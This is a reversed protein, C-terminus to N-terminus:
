LIDGAIHQRSSNDREWIHHAGLAHRWHALVFTVAVVYLYIGLAPWSKPRLALRLLHVRNAPADDRQVDAQISVLQLNGRRSRTKIKILDGLARPTSVTFTCDHVVAREHPQFRLRVFADDATIRPLPGVRLQGARSLAYVGGGIATDFYPLTLWVRYFARVAATAGAADVTMRPSAVPVGTRNMHGVLRRVSRVTLRIDADLVLKPFASVAKEGLNIANSKSGVPTEILRVGHGVRRVLDATADGCANAVVVVELEGPAAGRLLTELCRVIVHQENHAPIIVSAIPNM